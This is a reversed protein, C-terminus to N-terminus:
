PARISIPRNRGRCTPLTFPATSRGAHRIRARSFGHAGVLDNTSNAQASWQCGPVEAPSCSTSARCTAPISTSRARSCTATWDVTAYSAVYAYNDGAVPELNSTAAAAASGVRAGIKNLAERLGAVVNPVNRASFYKGRGNVTAHWLDDVGTPDLNAVAPWNKTGPWLQPTTPWHRIDPLGLRLGAQRRYGPGHRLLEHAAGPEQRGGHDACQQDGRRAGREFRQRPRFDAPRHQLLPRRHRGPHSLFQGHRRPQQWGGSLHDFKTRWRLYPRGTTASCM